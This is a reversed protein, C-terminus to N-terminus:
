MGSQVPKLPIAGDHHAAIPETPHLQSVPNPPQVSALSYLFVLYTQLDMLLPKRTGSLDSCQDRQTQLFAKHNKQTRFEQNSQKESYMQLAMGVNWMVFM